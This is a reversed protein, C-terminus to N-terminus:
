GEDTTTEFLDFVLQAPASDEASPEDGTRQVPLVYEQAKRALHVPLPLALMDRYDPTMRLQHTLAAWAEPDDGAQCGLVAVELRTPNWAPKATDITMGTKGDRVYTRFAWRSAVVASQTATSPKPSTSAFVRDDAAGAPNRWLGKAIGVRDPASEEDAPRRREDRAWWQPTEDGSRDRLRVLRLHTGQLALRQVPGGHIQIHDKRVVANQLWPWFRRLNQAHTLLLTPTDRLGFLLEQVAAAVLFRQEELRGTAPQRGEGTGDQDDGEEAGDLPDDPRDEDASGSGDSADDDSVDDDSVPLTAQRSLRLLFEPYPLWSGNVHDWGTLAEGGRAGPRVRVAVPVLGSERTPGDARRKVLWFAVYQVDAPVAAGLSHRPVIRHGLQRLGDQWCSKLKELRAEAAKERHDPRRPTVVFQTLRRVDAFGLRLAFKPDAERPGYSRPHLTEVLALTPLASADVPDLRRAVAARRRGIEAHLAETKRKSGKAVNLAAALDGVHELRLEVTLEPAKWVLTEPGPGSEQGTGEVGLVAALAKVGTDRHVATNWLFALQLPAGGTLEALGCRLEAHARQQQDRREPHTGSEPKAPRYPRPNVRHRDTRVLDPVRPLCDPLATEFWETLPVRDGPMLGPLVGHAGMLTSHVVAARVGKTRGLWYAPQGTLDSPEPLAQHFPIRSLIGDSGGAEWRPQGLRRDYRIRAVSFRESVWSDSADAIWPADTLLHVSAARAPALHLGYNGARTAWRRVGTRVHIQPAGDFPVSHLSVAVLASYWWRVGDKDVYDDPPWSVMEAGRDSPRRAVGRFALSGGNYGFPDLALAQCVLADPLLQYLREDPQATGGPTSTRALLDVNRLEWVLQGPDLEEALLRSVRKGYESEPRLDRVWARFLTGIVDSSVPRRAYLWPEDHDVDIWKAVSVVDPALAQLLNNFRGIPFSRCLEPRRLKLRYLDCLAGRIHEPLSLTYYPIEWRAGEPPAFAASRVLGYPEVAM